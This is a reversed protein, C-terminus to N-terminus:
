DVFAERTISEASWTNRVFIRDIERSILLWARLNQMVALLKLIGIRCLCSFFICSLYVLFCM